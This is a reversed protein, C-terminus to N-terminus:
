QTVEKAKLSKLYDIAERQRKLASDCSQSPQRSALDKQLSDVKKGYANAKANAQEYLIGSKATADAAVAISDNQMKIVEKLGGLEESLKQKQDNCTNLSTVADDRASAAHHWQYGLYSSSATMAALLGIAAVQWIRGTLLNTGSALVGSFFSM